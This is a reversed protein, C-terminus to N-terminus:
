IELDFVRAVKARGGAMLGAIRGDQFNLDVFIESPSPPDMLFGQEIVMRPQKVGMHDYLYCALPGAAMGTGAEEIIGYWPGFMRATAQRGPVFTETSFPYFGILDLPESIRSIAGFDPKLNKLVSQNKLPVLLFNNGVMPEHGPFLDSPSIGLSSLVEELRLGSATERLPRYMPAIQEMFAMDGLLIIDRNGDITEKSSRGPKLIGQQLFYVFAAITAHGCHPIQKTPTFFELKFDAAESESVFATESVGIRAAILQKEERTLTDANLIVGAPNGGNGADVFANIIRAIIKKM